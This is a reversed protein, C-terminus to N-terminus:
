ETLAVVHYELKAAHAKHLCLIQNLADIVKTKLGNTTKEGVMKKSSKENREECTQPQGRTNTKSQYEIAERTDGM